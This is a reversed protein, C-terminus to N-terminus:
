AAATSPVPDWGAIRLSPNSLLPIEQPSGPGDLVRVVPRDLPLGPVAAVLARRGDTLRIEIGPPFPAVLRAFVDTIDADFLTGAGDLIARVGVAPPRAPAHLRESTIADYVDAIAAIRAMEHIQGGTKADPYGSGDCREHHRLVVAKVLPSWYDGRLLDVGARPHTKMVEWETATLKGPKHLIATPIALKGIDHLLLGLGLHSLREDIRTFRRAGTFDLWGRSRLLHQGILLGLATVDISHQLTYADACALDALALAVGGSEQIELLIREIVDALADIEKAGIPRGSAVAEKAGAYAGAVARTAIARTEDGVIPEPVIGESEEDQVYIANVGAEILKDRYRSTIKAGARLLPVGDARGVLVDRGLAAGESVRSTPILRMGRSDAVV